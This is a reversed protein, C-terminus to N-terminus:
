GLIRANSGWEDRSRRAAYVEGGVGVGVSRTLREIGSMPAENSLTIM